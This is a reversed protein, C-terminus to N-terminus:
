RKAADEHSNPAGQGQVITVYRDTALDRFLEQCGDSWRVALQDVHERHALGFHLRPDKYSLYSSGWQNIGVQTLDGSTVTVKAGVAAAPTKGVLTLGLWHNRNGGDNRLLAATGRLDIHSVIIDLDGDNDYDWVAAGRPVSSAFITAESRVWTTFDDTAM